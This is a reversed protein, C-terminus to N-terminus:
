HVILYTLAVVPYLHIRVAIKLIKYKSIFNAIPPSYKYYLNTLTRGPKNTILHKDRFERLVNIHPHLPTGYAATAIFCGGKKGNDGNDPPEAEFNATVSKDSDMTITISNTTGTADGSWGTFDYGSNPTATITVEVGENYIYTGPEPDITGGVTTSTILGVLIPIKTVFVDGGGDYSADYADSTTPFDYSGTGGAIYVSRDVGVTIAKAIDVWSGGLYTSYISYSGTSDLKILFADGYTNIDGGNFSADYAGLTTPFENWWIDGVVYANRDSDVVIARGTGSVLPQPGVVNAEGILYTSFVLATGAPNLKTLFAEEGVTNYAGSTTPFNRGTKGIVYVNGDSDVAAGLGYDTDSGGLYTSYILDTGTSNLKTVFADYATGPNYSTDYAGPTTPFDYSRTAGAIYVNGDSDVAAGFGYDTDSEGLCTSYILDTGTSNLKTVFVDSNGNYSADYAGSTTPFDYSYTYGAVYVNGDSDVAIATCVDTSKGGLYTSWLLETGTPDFKSIFANAYNGYTYGIYSEYAAGPTTPFDRSKTYGAVYVNGDSDVAIAAAEEVEGYEGGLYTSYILGQIPQPEQGFSASSKVSLFVVLLVFLGIFILKRMKKGGLISKRGKNLKLPVM